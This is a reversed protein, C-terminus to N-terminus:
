APVKMKKSSSGLMQPTNVRINLTEGIYQRVRFDAPFLYVYDATLDRLLRM